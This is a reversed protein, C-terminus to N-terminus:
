YDGIIQEFPISLEQGRSWKEQDPDYIILQSEGTKFYKDIQMGLELFRTMLESSSIGLEEARLELANKKGFSMRLGFSAKRGKEKPANKDKLKQATRKKKSIKKPKKKSTDQESSSEYTQELNKAAESM